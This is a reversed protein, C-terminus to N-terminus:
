EHDADCEESTSSPPPPRRRSTPQSARTRASSTPSGDVARDGGARDGGARGDAIPRGDPVVNASLIVESSLLADLVAARASAVQREAVRRALVPDGSTVAALLEHHEHVVEEARSSLAIALHILRQLQEFVAELVNALVDNGATRALGVHFATNAKLFRRVSAREAQHYTTSLLADLQSRAEPAMPRTAARAAAECELLARLDFLDRASKITVPAVRYGTGRVVEVLGEGALRALAERAPTKSGGLQAAV